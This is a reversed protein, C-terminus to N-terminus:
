VRPLNFGWSPLRGDNLTGETDEPMESLFEDASELDVLYPSAPTSEEEQLSDVSFERSETGGLKDKDTASSDRRPAHNSGQRSSNALIFSARSGRPTFDRSDHVMGSKTRLFDAMTVLVGVELRIRLCYVFAKLITSELDGIVVNSFITVIDCLAVVVLVFIGRREVATWQFKWMKVIFIGSLVFEICGWLAIQMPEIIATMKAFIPLDSQRQAGWAFGVLLSIPLMGANILLLRKFVRTSDRYTVSIKQSVLMISSHTMIIWNVVLYVYYAMQPPLYQWTIFNFLAMVMSSAAAVFVIINYRNNKDKFGKTFVGRGIVWQLTSGSLVASLFTVVLLALFMPDVESEAM